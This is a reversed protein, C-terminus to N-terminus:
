TLTWNMTYPGVFGFRRAHTYVVPNYMSLIHKVKVCQEQMETTTVTLCIIVWSEVIVCIWHGRLGEATSTLCGFPDVERELSLESRPELPGLTAQSGVCWRSCHCFKVCMGKDGRLEPLRYGIYRVQPNNCAFDVVQTGGRLEPVRFEMKWSNINYVCVIM